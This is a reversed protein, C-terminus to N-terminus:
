ICNKKKLDNEFMLVMSPKEKKRGYDM